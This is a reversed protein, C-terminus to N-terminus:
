FTSLIADDMGMGLLRGAMGTDNAVKGPRGIFGGAEGALREAVSRATWAGDQSGM